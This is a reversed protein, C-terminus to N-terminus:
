SNHRNFFKDPLVNLVQLRQVEQKINQLHYDRSEKVFHEILDHSYSLKDRFSKVSSRKSRETYDDCGQKDSDTGANKINSLSEQRMNEMKSIGNDIVTMVKCKSRQLNVIDDLNKSRVTHNSKKSRCSHDSKLKSSNVRHMPPQSVKEDSSNDHKISSECLSSQDEKDPDRSVSEDKPRNNRGFDENKYKVELSSRQDTTTKGKYLEDYAFSNSYNSPVKINEGSGGENHDDELNNPNVIHSNEQEEIQHTSLRPSEQTKPTGILKPSSEAQQKEVRRTMGQRRARQQQQQQQKQENIRQIAESKATIPRRQDLNYNRTFTRELQDHTYSKNPILQEKYKSKPELNTQNDQVEKNRLQAEEKRFHRLLCEQKLRNVYKDDRTQGRCINVNTEPTLEPRTYYLKERVLPRYYDGVDNQLYTARPRYAINGQLRHISQQGAIRRQFTLTNSYNSPYATPTKVVPAKRAEAYRMNHMYDWIEDENVYDTAFDRVIGRGDGTSYDYNIGDFEDAAECCNGDDGLGTEITSNKYGQEYDGSEVNYQTHQAMQM